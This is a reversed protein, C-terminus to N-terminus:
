SRSFRLLQLRSAIYFTGIKSLLPSFLPHTGRPLHAPSLALPSSAPPSSLPSSLTGKGPVPLELEVAVRQPLRVRM